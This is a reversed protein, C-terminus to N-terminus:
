IRRAAIAAEEFAEKMTRPINCDGIVYLERITEDAMLGEALADNSRMGVALVVNEVELEEVYGKHQVVISDDRIEEVTTEM